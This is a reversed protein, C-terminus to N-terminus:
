GSGKIDAQGDIDIMRSQRAEGLKDVFAQATAKIEILAILEKYEFPNARLLVMRQLQFKQRLAARLVIRDSNM